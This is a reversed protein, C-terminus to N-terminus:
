STNAVGGPWCPSLLGGNTAASAALWPPVMGIHPWRSTIAAASGAIASVAEAVLSGAGAPMAPDVGADALLRTFFVRVLEARGAFRRLWGCVTEAPRGVAAAAVRFGAGAAKAALAAGIVEALDCRRALATV